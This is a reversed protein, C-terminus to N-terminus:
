TFLMDLVNNAWERTESSVQPSNALMDLMAITKQDPPQPGQPLAPQMPPGAMNMPLDTQNPAVISSPVGPPLQEPRPPAGSNGTVQTVGTPPGAVAPRKSEPDPGQTIQPLQQELRERDAGEGYTGSPPRGANPAGREAELTM